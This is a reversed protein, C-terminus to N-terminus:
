VASLVRLAMPLSKTGCPTGSSFLMLCRVCVAVQGEGPVGVGAGAGASEVVAGWLIHRM